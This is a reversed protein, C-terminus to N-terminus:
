EIEQHMQQKKDKYDSPDLKYIFMEGSTGVRNELTFKKNTEVENLLVESFTKHNSSLVKGTKNLFYDEFDENFFHKQSHPYTEVRVIDGRKLQDAEFIAERM